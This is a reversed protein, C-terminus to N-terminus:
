SEAPGFKVFVTGKVLVNAVQGPGGSRESVGSCFACVLHKGGQARVWEVREIMDLMRSALEAVTMPERSM